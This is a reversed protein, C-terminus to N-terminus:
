DKKGRVGEKRVKDAPKGNGTPFREISYVEELIQYLIWKHETYVKAINARDCPLEEGDEGIGEWEITCAVAKELDFRDKDGSIQNELSLEIVSSMDEITIEEGEKRAARTKELRRQLLTHRERSMIDQYAKSHEGRIKIRADALSGDPYKIDVWSGREASAQPSDKKLDLM